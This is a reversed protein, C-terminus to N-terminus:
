SSWRRPSSARRNTTNIVSRDTTPWDTPGVALVKYSQNHSAARGEMLGVQALSKAEPMAAQVAASCDKKQILQGDM